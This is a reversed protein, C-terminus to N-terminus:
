PEAVRAGVAAADAFGKRRAISLAKRTSKSTDLGLRRLEKYVPTASVGLLRGLETANLDGSRYRALLRAPIKLPKAPMAVGRVTMPLPKRRAGTRLIPAAARPWLFPM